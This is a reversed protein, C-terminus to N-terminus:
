GDDRDHGCRECPNPRYAENVVQAEGCLRLSLLQMGLVSFGVTFDAPLHTRLEPVEKIAVNISVPNLTVPELTIPRLTLTAEVPEAALTIKPLATVALSYSSPFGAVGVVGALDVGMGGSVHVNSSV